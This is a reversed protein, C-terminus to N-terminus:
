RMTMQDAGLVNMAALQIRGFITQRYGDFLKAGVFYLAKHLPEHPYFRRAMWFLVDRFREVPVEQKMLGSQFGCIEHIKELDPSGSSINHGRILGELTSIKMVRIQPTDTM